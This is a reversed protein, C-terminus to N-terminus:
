GEMLAYLAIPTNGRVPLHEGAFETRYGSTVRGFLATAFDGSVFIGGPQTIPDIWEPLASANGYLSTASQLVIGYHGSIRLSVPATNRDADRLRLAATAADEPTDFALAYGASQRSIHFPPRQLGALVAELPDITSAVFRSTDADGVQEIGAFGVFLLAAVRRGPEETAGAGASPTAIQRPWRLVHQPRGAARWTEGDRATEKGTGYPGAVDDAILLQIAVSELLRANLVAAGMSLESALTNAIPDYRGTIDSAERVSVAADLCAEFREAWSEAWPEVSAARFATRSMPLMVHLEAGHAILREAILIDSGAALAGFGFGVNHAALVDDIQTTLTAHDADEAGVGLHGAFHLSAPPRFEDLWGFPLDSAECILNLQRLTVAHDQWNSGLTVAHRLASTAADVQRQLLLAEARTAEIFYPTDAIDGGHDIRDVVQAAFAAAEGQDGALFRMTAVNILHYPAASLTDARAYACAAEAFLQKRDTEGFARLAQDKLLRGRLTHVSPDPDDDRFGAAEFQRWAHDLAGSRASALIATLNGSQAQRYTM